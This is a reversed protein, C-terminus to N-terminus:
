APFLCSAVDSKSSLRAIDYRTKVTSHRHPVIKVGYLGISQCGASIQLLLCM